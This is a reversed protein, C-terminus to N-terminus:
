KPLFWGTFTMIQVFVPTWMSSVCGGDQNVSLLLLRLYVRDYVTGGNNIYKVALTVCSLLSM